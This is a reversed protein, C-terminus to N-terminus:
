TSMSNLVNLIKDQVIEFGGQKIMFNGYYKYASDVEYGGEEYIEGYPLYGICGDAYGVVFLRKLKSDERLKDAMQSFVEANIGVFFVPGLKLIHIYAEAIHPANGNRILNKTEEYWGLMAGYICDNTYDHVHSQYYERHEDMMKELKELSLEELPLQVKSFMPLIDTDTCPEMRPFQNVIATGLLSGQHEVASYDSDMVLPNINGCAGNTILVIPKGSICSSVFDATFGAIDASIHRNEGTLGVNHVPYNALVAVCSGDKRIFALIPLRNDIHSYPSALRRDRSIENVISESYYLSAEEQSSMAEMTGEVITDQLFRIYDLDIDGCNRLRVTAPGSHTHTASLFVNESAIGLKEATANRIDCAMTNSFGILDCHIWVIKQSNCEICLIRAYLNDHIGLSPQKRVLFGSLEIGPRPTIQKAITGIKM